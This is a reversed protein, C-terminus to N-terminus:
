RMKTVGYHGTLIYRFSSPDPLTKLTEIQQPTNMNFAEAFHEYKGNKLILNDGSVLYDRGIIYCSSGPTHGPTLLIKIKLGDITLSDNNNLLTYPGYKWKTKFYKTKGTKGNIMQEEERQMYIVANKFLPIAGTHDGDTHTLLIASIKDQKIVLKTLERSFSKTGIGADFMIYGSSGKFIYANVFRDRICIVSDNVYGSEAPEMAKTAKRFNFYFVLAALILLGTFVVLIRLIIKATKKM